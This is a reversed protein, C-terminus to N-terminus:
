KIELQMEKKQKMVPARHPTFDPKVVREARSEVKGKKSVSTRMERKMSPAEPRFDGVEKPTTFRFVNVEGWQGLNNKGAAIAVYETDPDLPYDTTIPEYLFWGSINMPPDQCLENNLETPFRNYDPAFYVEVRYKSTNENPTYTIFQSPRIEGYWDAYRYDGLTIDVYAPGDSGKQLTVVDLTQYPVFTGNKDKIAIGIQCPTGPPIDTWTHTTQGISPYWAWKAIMENPNSAGAFAGWMEFDKEVTSNELLVTYYESVDENPTFTVKITTETLEDITHNVVPNGLIAPDPTRFKEIYVGAAIGYTDYAITVIGYDTSPQLEETSFSVDPKSGEYFITNNEEVLDIASVDSLVGAISWPVVKFRFGTTAFTCQFSLYVRDETVESIKTTCLIEGEVTRFYVGDLYDTVFGKYQGNEKVVIVRNPAETDQASMSGPAALAGLALLSSLIITKRM